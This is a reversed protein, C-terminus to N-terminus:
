LKPLSLTSGKMISTQEIHGTLWEGTEPSQYILHAHVSTGPHTLRGSSDKAFVGVITGQITDFTQQHPKEDPALEEGHLQAHIPCAGNIVHVATDRFHGSMRFLIPSDTDLHNARATQELHSEWKDPGLTSEFPTDEWASVSAGMLLTAESDTTIPNTNLNNDTHRTTVYPVSDLITVEGHLGEMAGIAYINAQKTLDGLRVRGKHDKQGIVRHMEGYQFWTNSQDKTQRSDEDNVEVWFWGRLDNVKFGIARDQPYNQKLAQQVNQPIFMSEGHCILCQAKLKIPFLAGTRDDPLRTFVPNQTAQELFPKAWEPPQNKPNRQRLATRGIKLGMSNGVSQTISVAENSCVDIAAVPGDAAMVEKLRGSLTAFLADKAQIAKEISKAPPKDSTKMETDSAHLTISVSAAISLALIFSSQLGKVGNFRGGTARTNLQQNQM